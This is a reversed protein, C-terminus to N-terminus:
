GSSPYVRGISRYHGAGYQKFQHGIEALSCEAQELQAQEL